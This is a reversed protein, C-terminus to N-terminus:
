VKRGGRDKANRQEATLRGIEAQRKVEDASTLGAAEIITDILLEADNWSQLRIANKMKRQYDVENM